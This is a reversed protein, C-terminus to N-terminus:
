VRVAQDHLLIRALASAPRRPPATNVSEEVLEVVLRGAIGVHVQDTVVQGGM